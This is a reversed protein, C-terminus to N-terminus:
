RKSSQSERPRSMENSTVTVPMSTSPTVVDLDYVTVMTPAASCASGGSWSQNTSSLPDIKWGSM